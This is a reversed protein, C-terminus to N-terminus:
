VNHKKEISRILKDLASRMAQSANIFEDLSLEAKQNLLHSDEPIVRIYKENIVGHNHEYVHRKQFVRRLSLLKDNDLEELIDEGLKDKFFKRTEFLMQFRTTDKTILAAKRNCFSEFTSVLDSYAHRLSRQSNNDALIDKKIIDLNADYILLNESRCGPCYGFIGFVQFRFNCSPCVLESDVQKEKYNPSINKQRYPNVKTTIKVYKNNSTNHSLDKLMQAIANHAYESAKEKVVEDIYKNQDTTWLQNNSFQIGCYPCFMKSIMSDSHVKFYRKCETNNCERGIFGQDTPVSIEFNIKNNM